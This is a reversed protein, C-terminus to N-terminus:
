SVDLTYYLCLGIEYYLLSNINGNGWRRGGWYQFIYPQHLHKYIKVGMGLETGRKQAGRVEWSSRECREM